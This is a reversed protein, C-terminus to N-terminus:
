ESTHCPCDPDHLVPAAYSSGFKIYSHGRYSFSITVLPPKEAQVDQLVPACSNLGVGIAIVLLVFALVLWPLCGGDENYQNAKM